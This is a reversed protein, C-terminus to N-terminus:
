ENVLRIEEIAAGKHYFATDIYLKEHTVDKPSFVLEDNLYFTLKGDTRRIKFVDGISYPDTDARRLREGGSKVEYSNKSTIYFSSHISEYSGSTDATSLGVYMNRNESKLKFSVYGDGVLGRTSFTGSGWGSVGTKTIHDEGIVLSELSTRQHISQTEIVEPKALETLADKYLRLFKVLSTSNTPRASDQKRVLKLGGDVSISLADADLANVEEVLNLIEKM